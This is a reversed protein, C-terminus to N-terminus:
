YLNWRDFRYVISRFAQLILRHTANLCEHGESHNPEKRGYDCGTLLKDTLPVQSSQRVQRVWDKKVSVLNMISSLKEICAFFALLVMM